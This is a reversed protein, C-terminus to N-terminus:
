PLKPRFIPAPMLDTPISAIHWGGLNALYLKGDHLAANSPRMLLEATPDEILVEIRGDPHGLYVIDPKYCAVVLRGDNAFALGDPVTQEPLRHTVEISGNPKHLPVRVVNAATSQVVYLWEGSPDIALGNAFRFPGAHFVETKGNPRIVFACGTGSESYYEGSDSVYYNGERDFVGYNPLVMKRDATGTSREAVSGDRGILLVARRNMDCAHIRGHGDLAIGLLFGGTSAYQMQEGDPRILYM